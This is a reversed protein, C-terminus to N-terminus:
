PLSMKQINESTINLESGITWPGPDLTWGVRSIYEEMKGVSAVNGDIIERKTLM